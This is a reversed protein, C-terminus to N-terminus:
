EHELVPVSRLKRDFFTGRGEDDALVGLMHKVETTFRAVSSILAVLIVLKSCWAFDNEM